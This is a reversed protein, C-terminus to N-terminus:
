LGEIADNIIDLLQTQLCYTKIGLRKCQVECRKESLWQKGLVVVFPVGILDADNMKWTFSQRRDDIVVDLSSGDEGSQGPMTTTLLDYIDAADAEAQPGPIIVVEFPALIRPWNLGKADAMHAAVAGMIRSVGIGHCGMQVPVTNTLGRDDGSAGHTVSAPVQVHAELASSYRTGLHFTHGLETTKQLKLRGGVCRACPDGHGVCLLNLPNGDPTSAIWRSPISASEHPMDPPMM